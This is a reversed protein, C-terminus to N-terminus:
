QFLKVAQTGAKVVSIIEVEFILERGALPHNFDIVVEDERVEKVVGPLEAKNADAFSLILGPELPLDSAFGARPMVQVNNENWEGFAKEPPLIVSRRDGRKLGVLVEEFGPLLSGDGYSFTAPSKERTSDVLEGSALSVSFHLTITTDPGILEGVEYSM